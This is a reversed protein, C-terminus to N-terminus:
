AEQVRQTQMQQTVFGDCYLKQTLADRKYFMYVKQQQGLPM